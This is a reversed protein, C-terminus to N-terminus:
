VARKEKVVEVGPPIQGTAKIYEKVAATKLELMEVPIKTHDAIRYETTTRTKVKVLPEALNRVLEPTLEPTHGPDAVAAQAAQQAERRRTEQLAAWATLRMTIANVATDLDAIVPRVLNDIRRCLDLPAAKVETKRAEVAERFAKVEALISQAELCAADTEITLISYALTKANAAMAVADPDPYIVAKLADDHVPNILDTSM